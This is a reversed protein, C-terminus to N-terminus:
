PQVPGFTLQGCTIHNHSPPSCQCSYASLRNDHRPLLPLTAKHAASPCTHILICNFCAFLSEGSVGSLLPFSLLNSHKPPPAQAVRSKCSMPTLPQLAPPFFPPHLLSAKLASRSNKTAMRQIMSLHGVNKQKAM